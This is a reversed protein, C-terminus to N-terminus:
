LTQLNKYLALIAEQSQTLSQSLTLNIRTPNAMAERNEITANTLAQVADAMMKQDYTEKAHKGAYGYGHASSTSKKRIQYRRYEQVFNKKFAQWTKQDVQM